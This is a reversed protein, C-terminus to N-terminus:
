RPIFWYHPRTALGTVPYFMSRDPFPDGLNRYSAAVDDSFWDANLIIAAYKKEAITSKIERELEAYMTSDGSRIEVLAMKHACSQKGALVPIYGHYPLLIEGQVGKLRGIFKNGWEKDAKTPIQKTPNYLLLGFQVVFLVVFLTSYRNSPAGAIKFTSDGLKGLFVGATISLVAATPILANEFGGAFLRMSWSSALAGLVICIWFVRDQLDSKGQIGKVLALFALFMVPIQKLIDKTWFGLLLNTDLTHRNPLTFVYYTYWGTNIKDLWVTSGVAILLAPLVLWISKLKSSYIAYLVLAVTPLLTSQKALFALGLLIGAILFRRHDSGGRILFAAWLLLATALMDVRGIDYWYGCAGFCAAFLGVSVAALLKNSTEQKVWQFILGFVSITSLISVLRVAVFGPGIIWSSVASIYYFLPTYIFPIFELSPKGYLPQGHMIRLVHDVVAGEMWELEFPYWLRVFALYLFCATFGAGLVSLIAFLFNPRKTNQERQHTRGV